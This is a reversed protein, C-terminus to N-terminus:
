DTWLSFHYSSSRFALPRSVEGSEPNTEAWPWQWPPFNMMQWSPISRPQPGQGVAARFNLDFCVNQRLHKLRPLGTHLGQEGKILGQSIDQQHGPNLRECPKMDVLLNSTALAGCGPVCSEKGLVGERLAKHHMGRSVPYYHQTQLVSIELDKDQLAVPAVQPERHVLLM